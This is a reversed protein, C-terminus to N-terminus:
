SNDSRVEYQLVQLGEGNDAPLMTWAAIRQEINQIVSDERRNFFMGWSTRREDLMPEATEPHTVVSPTLRPQAGARIHECEAASLFGRRLFIRPEWSLVEM